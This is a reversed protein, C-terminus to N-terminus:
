KVMCVAKWAIEMSYLSEHVDYTDFHHPQFFRYPGLSSVAETNKMIRMFSFTLLAKSSIGIFSVTKNSFFKTKKLILSSFSCLAM